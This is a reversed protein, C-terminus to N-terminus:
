TLALRLAIAAVREDDAADGLAVARHAAAYAEVPVLAGVRPASALDRAVWATGLARNCQALARDDPSADPVRDLRVARCAIWEHAPRRFDTVDVVEDRAGGWAIARQVAHLLARSHTQLLLQARDREIARQMARIADPTLACVAAAAAEPTAHARLDVWLAQPLYLGSGHLNGHYLPICGAVLADWVKESVYGAADCNEVILAFTHRRLLMVSHGRARPWEGVDGPVVHPVGAWTDGYGTVRMGRAGLQTAYRARLADCAHLACGNVEYRGWTDRNELVVGVSPAPEACPPQLMARDRPDDLDVCHGIQPCRIAKHRLCRLLPPWYTMVVDFRADLWQADFQAAHRANPSEFLYGIRRVDARRFTHAAELARPDCLTFLATAGTPIPGRREADFGDVLAYAEALADLMTLGWEDFAVCRARAARPQQRMLAATARADFHFVYLVHAQARPAAPADRFFDATVSRATAGVRYRVLRREYPLFRPRHQFLWAFLARDAEVGGGVRFPRHWAVSAAVAVARRLLYCNTDVMGGAALTGVSEFDDDAIWAGDADHVSRLCFSWDRGSRALADAWDDLAGDELWNDEDLYSVFALAPDVLWPVGGYARHGCWGDAGVNDPLVILRARPALARVRAEHAAGDVVVYHVARRQAEVSAACRRLAADGVSPTIVAVRPPPM